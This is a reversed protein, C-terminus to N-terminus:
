RPVTSEALETALADSLRDPSEDLLWHGGDIARVRPEHSTHRSWEGATSADHMPDDRGWIVSIPVELAVAPRGAYGAILSHDARLAPEFIARAGPDDALADPVGGFAKIEAWFEDSPATALAPDVRIRDPAGFSIVVLRRPPPHGLRLLEAAFLYGLLAGGCYGIVGYPRGDHHETFAEALRTVLPDLETWAPEHFRAQRGPLNVAWLDVRASLRAAISGFTACGGGAHPFAFAQVPAREATPLRVFWDDAASRGM